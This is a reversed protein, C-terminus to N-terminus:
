RAQEAPEQQPYAPVPHAFAVSLLYSWARTKEESSTSARAQRGKSPEHWSHQAVAEKSSEQEQERSRGERQRALCM